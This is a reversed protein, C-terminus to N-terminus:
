IKNIHTSGLGKNHFYVPFIYKPPSKNKHPESKYTKTYFMYIVIEYYRKNKEVSEKLRAHAEQAINRRCNRIKSLKKTERNSKQM